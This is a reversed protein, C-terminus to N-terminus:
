QMHFIPIVRMKNISSHFIHFINATAKTMNNQPMPTLNAIIVMKGPPLHSSM